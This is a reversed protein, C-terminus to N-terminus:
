RDPRTDIRYGHDEIEVSLAGSSVLARTADSVGGGSSGCAEILEVANAAYRGQSVYVMEQCSRLEAEAMRIRASRASPPPPSISSASTNSRKKGSLPQYRSPDCNHLGQAAVLLSVMKLADKKRINGIVLVIGGCLMADTDAIDYTYLEKAKGATERMLDMFERTARHSDFVSERTYNKNMGWKNVLVAATEIVSKLRVLSSEFEDASSMSLNSDFEALTSRFGSVYRQELIVGTLVVIVLFLVGITITKHRSFWGSLGAPAPPTEKEALKQLAAAVPTEELVEPYAPEPTVKKPPVLKAFVVGCRICDKGKQQPHGCKPCAFGVPKIAAEQKKDASAPKGAAIVQYISGKKELDRTIHLVADRHSLGKAQLKGLLATVMTRAKEQSYGHLCIFAEIREQDM